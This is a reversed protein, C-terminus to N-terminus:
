VKMRSVEWGGVASGAKEAVKIGKPVGWCIEGDGKVVGHGKV